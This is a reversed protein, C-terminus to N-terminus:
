RRRSAPPDERGTGVPPRTQISVTVGSVFPGTRGVVDVCYEFPGYKVVPETVYGSEPNSAAAPIWLTEAAGPSVVAAVVFALTMVIGYRM